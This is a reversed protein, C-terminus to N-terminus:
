PMVELPSLAITFSFTTLDTINGNEDRLQTYRDLAIEAFDVPADGNLLNRQFRSLMRAPGESRVVGKLNIRIERKLPHFDKAEEGPQQNRLGRMVENIDLLTFQTNEFNDPMQEVLYSMLIELNIRSERWGKLTQLAQELRQKKEILRKADEVKTEIEGWRATLQEGKKITNQLSFYHLAVLAIIIVVVGVAGIKYLPNSEAASLYRIERPELLNIPHNM